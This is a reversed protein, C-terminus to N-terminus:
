ICAVGKRNPWRLSVMGAEIGSVIEAFGWRLFMFNMKSMEFAKMLVIPIVWGEGCAAFRAAQNITIMSEATMAAMTVM